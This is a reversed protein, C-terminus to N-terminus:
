FPDRLSGRSRCPTWFSDGEPAALFSRGRLRLWLGVPLVAVVFALALLLALLWRGLCAQVKMVAQHWGAFATPFLMGLALAVPMAAVFATAPLPIWGRHGALGGLALPPLLSAGIEFRRRLPLPEKLCKM